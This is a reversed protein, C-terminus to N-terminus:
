TTTSPQRQWTWLGQYGRALIPEPLLEINELRWVYRGVAYDGLGDVPIRADPECAGAQRSAIAAMGDDSLDWAWVEVCDILRATAIMAGHPLSVDWMPGWEAECADKVPWPLSDAPVPTKGAHIGITTGWHKKPAPWSRTESTKIEAALLSAHPQRITLARMLDPTFSMLGYCLPCEWLTTDFDGEPYGAYSVSVREGCVLCSVRMTPIEDILAVIKRSCMVEAAESSSRSSQRRARSRRHARALHQAHSRASREFAPQEHTADWLPTSITACGFRPQNEPKRVPGALASLRPM